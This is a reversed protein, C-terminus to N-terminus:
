SITHLCTHTNKSYFEKKSRSRVVARYNAATTSSSRILQKGFIHYKQSKPFGGVLIVVNKAIEKTRDCMMQTFKDREM